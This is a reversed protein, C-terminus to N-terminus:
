ELLIGLMSLERLLNVDDMGNHVWKEIKLERPLTEEEDEEDEQVQHKPERRM